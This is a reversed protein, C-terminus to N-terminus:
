RWVKITDATIGAPAASMHQRPPGRHGTWGGFTFRPSSPSLLATKPTVPWIAALEGALATILEGVDSAASGHLAEAVILAAVRGQANVGALRCGPQNDRGVQRPM